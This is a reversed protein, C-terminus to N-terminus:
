DETKTFRPCIESVDDIQTRCDVFFTLDIRDVDNERTKCYKINLRYPNEDSFKMTLHRYRIATINTRLYSVYKTALDARLLSSNTTNEDLNDATDFGYSVFRSSFDITLFAECIQFNGEVCGDINMSRDSLSQNRKCNIKCLRTQNLFSDPLIEYAFPCLPLLFWCFTQINQMQLFTLLFPADKNM